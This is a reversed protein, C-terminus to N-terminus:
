EWDAKEIENAISDIKVALKKNIKDLQDAIIDLRLACVFKFTKAFNDEIRKIAKNAEDEFDEIQKKQKKLVRLKKENQAPDTADQTPDPVAPLNNAV